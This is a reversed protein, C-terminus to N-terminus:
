ASFDPRLKLLETMEKKSETMGRRIWEEAWSYLGGSIFASVYASYNSDAQKPGFLEMMSDRLIYILGREYLLKYLEAHAHLHGFLNGLMEDDRVTMEKEKAFNDKNTQLWEFILGTIYKKIIEEKSEFNRYFSVRGTCSRAAIEDVTIKKLEKEKLLELMANTIQKKVYTNKEANHTNM